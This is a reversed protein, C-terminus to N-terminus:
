TLRGAYVHTEYEITVEGGRSHESFLDDLAQLMEEYRPQGRNPMYSASLTRGRLGDLDVRQANAFVRATVANGFFLPVRGDSEANQHKIRLYDTGFERCLQEYAALFAGSERRNNWLLVVQARQEPGPERLIRVFERRAGDVDFWHFAQAAMVWSVSAGPLSTHEATGNVPRFGPRDGLLQVMAARMGTNPEV